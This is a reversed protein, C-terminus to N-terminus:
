QAVVEVTVAAQVQPHLDVTVEHTGTSRIPDGLHVQRRDLTVGAVKTFEEVLQPVTISGFLRGDEGARATLRIPSAALKDAVAQAESVAKEVKGRHASRAREAHREGGPTALAAFGHPILYNRAFGDAVTVVDGPGGLKDVERQLIIKM